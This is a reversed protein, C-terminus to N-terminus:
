NLLDSVKYRDSIMMSCYKAYLRYTNFSEGSGCVLSFGLTNLADIYDQDIDSRALPFTIHVGGSAAMDRLTSYDDSNKLDSIQPKSDFAYIVNATTEYRRIFSLINIDSSEFAHSINKTSFQNIVYLLSSSPAAIGDNRVVMGIGYLNCINVADCFLMPPNVIADYNVTAIDVSANSQTSVIGNYSLCVVNDKTKRIYVKVWDFCNEKANIFAEETDPFILGADDVLGRDAVSVISGAIRKSRFSSIEENIRSIEERAETDPLLVVGYECYPTAYDGEEVQVEDLILDGIDYGSGLEGQLYIVGDTVATFTASVRGTSGEAISFVQTASTNNDRLIRGELASPLEEIVIDASFTYTKGNEVRAFHEGNQNIAGNITTVHLQSTESLNPNIIERRLNRLNTNLSSIGSAVGNLGVTFRAFYPLVETDIRSNVNSINTETASLRTLVQPIATSADMVANVGDSPTGLSKDVDFKFVEGHYVQDDKIWAIEAYIFTRALDTSTVVWYGKDESVTFNEAAYSEEDGNRRLLLMFTDPLGYTDIMPALNFEVTTVGNDLKRGLTTIEEAKVNNM